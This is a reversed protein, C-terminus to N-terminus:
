EQKEQPETKESELINEVTPNKDWNVIMQEIVDQPVDHQNRKALEEANSKWPTNSEAFKVEYGYKLASEVYPKMQWLQVNTNDIVIPSVGQMMAENAREQNWQHATTIEAPDYQYQGNSMWYNDTSLIIGNHALKKAVTSKGSGPLGRMLYLTLQEPNDPARSKEYWDM